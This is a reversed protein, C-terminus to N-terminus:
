QREALAGAVTGSALTAPCFAAYDSEIQLIGDSFVLWASVYPNSESTTDNIHTKTKDVEERRLGMESFKLLLM